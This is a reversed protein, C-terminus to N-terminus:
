RKSLKFYERSDKVALVEDVCQLWNKWLIQDVSKGNCALDINYELFKIDQALDTTSFYDKLFLGMALFSQLITLHNYNKLNKHKLLMDLSEGWVEWMASDVTTKDRLFSMVGIIVGIDGSPDLYYYIKLFKIMANYAQLKTLKKKM